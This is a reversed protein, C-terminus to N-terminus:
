VTTNNTQLRRRGEVGWRGFQTMLPQHQCRCQSICCEHDCATKQALSPSHLFPKGPWGCRLEQGPSRELNDWLYNQFAPSLPFTGSAKHAQWPHLVEWHGSTRPGTETDWCLSHRPHGGATYIQTRGDHTWSHKSCWLGKGPKVTSHAYPGRNTHETTVFKRGKRGLEGKTRNFCRWKRDEM